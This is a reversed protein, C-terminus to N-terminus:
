PREKRMPPYAPLVSPLCWLLVATLVIAGSSGFVAYNTEVDDRIVLSTIWWALGWM